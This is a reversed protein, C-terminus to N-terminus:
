ECSVSGLHYFICEWMNKPETANVTIHSPLWFLCAAVACSPIDHISTLSFSPSVRTKGDCGPPEELMESLNRQIWEKWAMTLNPPIHYQWGLCQPYIRSRWGPSQFTRSNSHCLWFIERTRPMILVHRKMSSLCDVNCRLTACKWIKMNNWGIHPNGLNPTGGTM